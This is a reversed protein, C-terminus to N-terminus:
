GSLTTSSRSSLRAPGHGPPPTGVPLRQARGSHSPGAPAGCLTRASWPPRSPLSCDPSQAARANPPRPPRKQGDCSGTSPAGAMEHCLSPAPPCCRVTHGCGGALVSGATARTAPPPLGLGCGGCTPVGKRKLRSGWLCHALGTVTCRLAAAEPTPSPSSARASQPPATQAGRPSGATLEASLSGLTACPCDPAWPRSPM